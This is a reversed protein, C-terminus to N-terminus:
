LPINGHRRPPTEPQPRNRLARLARGVQLRTSSPLIVSDVYGREAAAYPSMMEREYAAVLEQRLQEAHDGAEALTRRHLIEVAGEGGMVAIQATPWAFNFDAGLHKSGMVAYAGGYAKRLVVTITPVTAEAYAHLLKAGRRIIGDREQDVGPMYGPVDVFTIVPLNFADCFRVFRAAKETADIDLAGALHLPQNAVVGVADGNIRAFGCVINRAFMAHIELLEGGDVVRSIVDHIDYSQRPSDPIVSDLVDDEATATPSASSAVSPPLSLSNSPLYSLLDQIWRLAESENAAVHHCNGSVSSNQRPGGLEDVTVQEGTVSRLVDPGTVFMYSSADVMVVFDMLAPSYVAGGACPGAILAIQPVVGSAQSNRRGLEAYYALSVVGEQIRAGGSENISIVPCGLTTAQDMAKLIKRGHTEGMSGGLVTFDQSFVCVTRGDVQGTGTIVGDGYPGPGTGTRHRALQDFEQLSDPDLLLEVRQRASLKGAARRKEASTVSGASLASKRRAVLEEEALSFGPTAQRLTVM